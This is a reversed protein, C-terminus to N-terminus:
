RQAADVMERLREHGGRFVGFGDGVLVAEISELDALRSVSSLAAEKDSLKPDPLLRLTGAQHCRILDGTILTSDELVLALEGPTKSGHLEFVRLGPAPEDGEGLWRNCTLGLTPSEKRPGMIQAGYVAALRSTDRLHDSNTVVIVSVGGLEELHAADHESLPLPDIVVNGDERRWLFSNFDINRAEDFASWMYLDARHLQKM